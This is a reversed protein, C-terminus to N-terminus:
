QTIFHGENITDGMNSFKLAVSSNFELMVLLYKGYLKEGKRQKELYAGTQNPDLRDRQIAAYFIGEKNTFDTNILDSSQVYPVETRLHTFDPPITSEIAVAKYRKVAGAPVNDVYMIRSKFAQGYITTSTPDNHKYLKGAKISYLDNGERIFTEANYLHAGAWKDFEQKYCLTKATGDYIDYYYNINTYDSLQGKPASSETQPISFMAEKHYPDVGGIILQGTALKKGFLNAAKVLKNKSIPFLGNNSYQAYCGNRKDYWWVLGNYEVVSEPNSTGLSGQLAKCTGIVNSSYAVFSNGQSDFVETEGLYCSQTENTCIALLVTGDTSVKNALILKQIVGNESGLTKANLPQFTALGNVKSGVIFVDSYIITDQQTVQGIKDIYNTWGRDMQWIQWKLDYPSMTETNYATTSQLTRRLLYCDGYITGSLTSYTRSASGPLNIAMVPGTEFYPEQISQKYPTYLEFLVQTTTNSVTGIDIPSLLVYNGDQGIIKTNYPDPTSPKYIKALDGVAYSYGLGQGFLTSINIALAYTTDKNYTTPTYDYAGTTINKIAYGAGASMGQLFFRTTLNKTIHMQYYYAWDPIESLTPTASLNWNLITSFVSQEFTRPNVNVQNNIDVVGCKRRFRDYFAVSVKYTANSKFFQVNGINAAFYLNTTTGTSNFTPSGTWTSGTPPAYNRQIYYALNVETNWSTTATASDINSPPSATFKLSDFFYSTNPSGASYYAYYFATTGSFSGDYAVYSMRVYKWPVVFTGAGGTDITALALSLSTVLPTSYGDKIDGLFLRDKAAVLGASKIPVLHSSTVSAVDGILIGTVDNYFRYSLQLSGSNHSAILALDATSAKDFTKIIKVKTDINGFRVCINIRIIDDDIYETFLLKFDIANSLETPFNYPALTSFSSLASSEGDRYEYFYCAQFAETGIYNNTYSTDQLKVSSMPYVPPRKILTQTTYALPSTYPAQSTTYGSHNLKIGAEINIKKPENNNDTWYLMGGIVECSHIYFSNSFNLGGTVQADLLVKYFTGDKEKCYIGNLGTSNYNFTILRQKDSDECGGNGINTGNAPLYPNVIETNGSITEIRGVAGNDTTAFRMNEANVWQGTAIFEFDDDANCGGNFHKKENQL